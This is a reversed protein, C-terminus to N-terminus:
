EIGTREEPYAQLPSIGDCYKAQTFLYWSGDPDQCWELHLHEVTKKAQNLQNDDYTMLGNRHQLLVSLAQDISTNM